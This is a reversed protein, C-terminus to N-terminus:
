LAVGPGRELVVWIEVVELPVARASLADRQRTLAVLWELAAPWLPGVAVLLAVDDAVDLQKAAASIRNVVRLTLSAGLVLLLACALLVTRRPSRKSMTLQNM